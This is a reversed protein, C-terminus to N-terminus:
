IDQPMTPKNTVHPNPLDDRLRMREGALGGIATIVCIGILVLAAPWSANGGVSLLATAVLPLFGSVAGALNYGLSVGSYRLSPPLLEALLAGTVAYALTILAIGAAVAATIAWANRTDILWFLPFAAIATTM